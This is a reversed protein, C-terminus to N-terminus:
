LMGIASIVIVLVIALVLVLVGSPQEIARHQTTPTARHRAGHRAMTVKLAIMKACWPRVAVQAKAVVNIGGPRIVRASSTM